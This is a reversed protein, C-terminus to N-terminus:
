AHRGAPEARAGLTRSAAGGVGRRLASVPGITPRPRVRGPRLPRHPHRQAEGLPRDHRRVPQVGLRRRKGPVRIQANSLAADGRGHVPSQVVGRRGRRLPRPPQVHLELGVHPQGLGHGALPVHARTEVGRVQGLGSRLRVRQGSLLHRALARASGVRARHASRAPDPTRRARGAHRGESRPPHGCLGVRRRGRGPHADSHGRRADHPGQPRCLIRCPVRQTGPLLLAAFGRERHASIAAGAVSVPRHLRPRLRGHTRGTAAATFGHRPGPHQGIAVGVVACAYRTPGPTGRAVPRVLRVAAGLKRHQAGRVSIARGHVQRGGTGSRRPLGARVRHRPWRFRHGSPRPPRPDRRVEVRHRAADPGGRAPIARRGRPRSQIFVPSRNRLKWRWLLKRVCPCLPM